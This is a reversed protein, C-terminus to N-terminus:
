GTLLAGKTTSIAALRSRLCEIMQPPPSLMSAKSVFLACLPVQSFQCTPFM